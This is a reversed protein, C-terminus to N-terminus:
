PKEGFGVSKLKMWAGAESAGVPDLRLRTLAGSYGVHDCLPVVYRHFQGDGQIPLSVHNRAAFSEDGHRQWMLTAQTQKTQFAAEIILQPADSAQWFTLPSILQPDDQDLRVRLHGTVPWGSDKANQYHWGQRDKSFSWSPSPHPKWHAARQRIEDVTGLALEYRFAYRINHDLIEQGQGALYGTSNGHTDNAGPQGAFGGTFHVRGPTILGLGTGQENVLAAWGETATWFSWPHKGEAAPVPTVTDNTFPRAGQYSLVRHFAANAYVAPLEQLRAHYQTLDGRQNVLQARAKVVPGELELWSEFVCDGPVNNLPWQLPKCRLHIQKGDNKHSLIQSHNKFDDGSQIPNWGIHAWHTAPKQGQAEFPVPGSFFSLQVQRGLDFNNVVNEDEKVDALFTIAGGRDLDVGLKIKDNQLWSMQEAHLSCSLLASLLSLRLM